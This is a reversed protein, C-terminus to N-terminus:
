LDCMFPFFFAKQSSQCPLFKESIEAELSTMLPLAKYDGQKGSKRYYPLYVSVYFCSNSETDTTNKAGGVLSSQLVIFHRTTRMDSRGFSRGKVHFTMQEGSNFHFIYFM